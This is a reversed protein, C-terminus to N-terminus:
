RKIIGWIAIGLIVGYIAGAVYMPIFVQWWSWSLKDLIKMIAFVITLVECIGM